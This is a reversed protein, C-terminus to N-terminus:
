EEFMASLHELTKQDKPHLPEPYTALDQLKRYEARADEVFESALNAARIPDGAGTRNTRAFTAAWILKEGLTM